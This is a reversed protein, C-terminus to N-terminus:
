KGFPKNPSHLFLSGFEMSLEEFLILQAQNCISQINRFHRFHIDEIGSQLQGIEAILTSKLSDNPHILLKFLENKKLLISDNQQKIAARHEQILREYKQIQNEDFALKNIIYKKPGEPSPHNGPYNLIIYSILLLNSILLAIVALQFLKIRSM